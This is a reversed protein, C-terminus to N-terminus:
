KGELGLEFGATRSAERIKDEGAEKGADGLFVTHLVRTFASHETSADTNNLKQKQKGSAPSTGHTPATNIKYIELQGLVSARYSGM